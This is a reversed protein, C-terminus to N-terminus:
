EFTDNKSKLKQRQNRASKRNKLLIYEKKPWYSRVRKLGEITCTMLNVGFGHIIVIEEPEIDKLAQPLGDAPGLKYIGEPLNALLKADM